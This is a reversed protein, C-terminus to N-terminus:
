AALTALRIGERVKADVAAPDLEGWDIRVVVWGTALIDLERREQAARAGPTKYKIQGDFEIVVRHGELVFDVRYRRGSASRVQFQPTVLWGLQRLIDALLTEGPSEHRRDMVGVAARAAEIGPCGSYTDLASRLDADSVLRARLAADGAVVASVPNNTMATAVISHAPDTVLVRTKPDDLEIQRVPVAAM